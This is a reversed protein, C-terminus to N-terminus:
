LRGSGARLSRKDIVNGTTQKFLDCHEIGTGAVTPRARTAPAQISYFDYHREQEPDTM